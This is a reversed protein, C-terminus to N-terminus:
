TGVARQGAKPSEGESTAPDTARAAIEADEPTRGSTWAGATGLDITRVTRRAKPKTVYTPLTVPVPDWLAGSDPTAMASAAPEAVRQPVTVPEPQVEPLVEVPVPQPEPQSVPQPEVHQHTPVEPETTAVYATPATREVRTRPRRLRQRRVQTRCLACFLLVLVAPVAPSWRPLYGLYAGAGTAVVLVLLVMLIRRRRRAAVKGATRRDEGRGRPVVQQVPAPATVPVKRPPNVVLRADRSSVPERRAVVRTDDSFSEVPRTRAVEDHQKLAKPILYVAWVLALVVFIIGSLDV